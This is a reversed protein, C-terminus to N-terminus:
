RRSREGQRNAVYAESPHEESALYNPAYDVRFAPHDASSTHQKPETNKIKILAQWAQYPLQDPWGAQQAEWLDHSPAEIHPYGVAYRPVASVMASADAVLPQGVTEVREM